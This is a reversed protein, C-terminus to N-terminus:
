PRDPLSVKTYLADGGSPHDFTAVVYIRGRESHWETPKTITGGNSHVHEELRKKEAAIQHWHRLESKLTPM